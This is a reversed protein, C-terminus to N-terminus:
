GIVVANVAYPRKSAVQSRKQRPLRLPIWIDTFARGKIHETSPVQALEALAYAVGYTPLHEGYKHTYTRAAERAERLCADVDGLCLARVCALM